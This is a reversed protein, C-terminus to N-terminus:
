IKKILTFFELDQWFKPSDIVKQYEFDTAMNLGADLHPYSGFVKGDAAILKCSRYYLNNADQRLEEVKKADPTPIKNIAGYEYYKIRKKHIEKEELRSLLVLPLGAGVVEKVFELSDNEPIHYAIMIIHQRFFKLLKIPIPQSTVIVAKQWYNLHYALLKEDYFIDTRIEVIQEPAPMVHQSSPILERVINPGYRPGVYVTKFPTKVDLGLQKFIADAIEEPKITNIAKPYPEPGGYSPKKNRVNLFANFVIQKEPSGFHPGSVKSSALGYLGVIPIDFHAALHIGISDPGFHLMARRIIYALQHLNTKGRADIAGQYFIESPGGVQIIDINNQRLTPLIINLVDRWYDYNKNNLKSQAQFTIFKKSLLPYFSEYIFPKDIKSATSLAYIDLLRM